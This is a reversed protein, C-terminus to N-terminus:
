KKADRLKKIKKKLKSKLQILKVIDEPYNHISNVLMQKDRTILYLNEPNVNLSNGDSFQLNCGAPIPGCISEWLYRHKLVFKGGVKIYVYPKGKSYRVSEYGDTKINHPTHGQKFFTHQVKERIADDMKKGKNHTIHGPKFTTAAGIKSGKQMRGGGQAMFYAESKNLKLIYAMGNISAETRDLRKAISCTPTNAYNNILYEKESETWLRRV